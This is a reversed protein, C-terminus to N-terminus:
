LRLTLGANVTLSLPRLRLNQSHTWRLLVRGRRIESAALARRKGRRGHRLNSVQARIVDHEDGGDGGLLLIFEDAHRGFLQHLKVEIEDRAPFRRRRGLGSTRHLGLRSVSIRDTRFALLVMSRTSFGGGVLRGRDDRSSIRVGRRSFTDLLDLFGAAGPAHM